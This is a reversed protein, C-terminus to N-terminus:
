KVIDKIYKIVQQVQGMTNYAGVSIRVSGNIGLCQHIWSACMNGVRVCVGRAGVLAGFDLVHMGDIIFSLIAADRGTLVKIRPIQKLEDYMYRILELDPRNNEINDIASVLGAIQSLPM